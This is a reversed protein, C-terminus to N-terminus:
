KNADNLEKVKTEIFDIKDSLLTVLAKAVAIDMYVGFEYERLIGTKSDASNSILEGITNDEKIAFESSKPIPAREAYFSLNILGRGTAGGYAGDIHVERFNASIKNHITITKKDAM